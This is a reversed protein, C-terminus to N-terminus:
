VLNEGSLLNQILDPLNVKIRQASDELRRHVAQAALQSAPTTGRGDLRHAACAIAERDSPLWRFRDMEVRRTRPYMTVRIASKTMAPRASTANVRKNLATLKM